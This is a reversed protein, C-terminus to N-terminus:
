RFIKLKEKHFVEFMQLLLSVVIFEWMGMLLCCCDHGM